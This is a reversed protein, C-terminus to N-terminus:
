SGLVGQTNCRGPRRLEADADNREEGEAARSRRNKGAAVESGAGSRMTADGEGIPQAGTQRPLSWRGDPPRDGADGVGV